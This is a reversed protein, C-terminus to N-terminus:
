RYLKMQEESRRKPDKYRRQIEQMQPQIAGMARMTHMQKLTLPYTVVLILITLLIVGIGANGSIASFFVFLNTLPNILVTDFYFVVFYVGVAIAVIKVLASVPSGRM